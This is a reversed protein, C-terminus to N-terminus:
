ALNGAGRCLSRRKCAGPDKVIMSIDHNIGALATNIDQGKGTLSSDGLHKWGEAM